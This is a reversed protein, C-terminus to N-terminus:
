IKDDDQVSEEITIAEIRESAELSAIQLLIALTREGDSIALSLAEDILKLARELHIGKM